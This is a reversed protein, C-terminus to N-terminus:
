RSQEAVVTTEGQASHKVTVSEPVGNETEIGATYEVVGLCQQCADVDTEVAEVTVTLSGGDLSVDVFAAEHCPNSTPLKGDISAGREGFAVSAENESGCGTNVTELSTAAVSLPPTTPEATTPEATTPEATTPEGDDGGDDEDTTSEEGSGGGDSLCGAVAVTGTVAGARKLLTRRKM